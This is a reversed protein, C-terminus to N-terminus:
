HMLENKSSIFSVIKSIRRCPNYRNQQVVQRVSRKSKSGVQEDISDDRSPVYRMTVGTPDFHKLLRRHYFALLPMHTPNYKTAFHQKNIRILNSSTQVSFKLAQKVDDRHTTQLSQLFETVDFVAWGYLTPRSADDKLKCSVPIKSRFEQGFQYSDLQLYFYSPIPALCQYWVRIEARAFSFNFFTDSHLSPFSLLM